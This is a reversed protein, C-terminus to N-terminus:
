YVSKRLNRQFWYSRWASPKKRPVIRNPRVSVPTGAFLQNMKGIVEATPKSSLLLEILHEKLTHFSVARNIQQRYQGQRSEQALRRQQPRTLLSELNSLLVTAHVDQRVAELGYGTFNELSLRGKLLGYYTEIGWRYGYLEGLAEVEYAREDLLTTVLVELEGTSLRLSVFRLKIIRPLGEEQMVGIKGNPALLEVVVSRGPENLAFLQDAAGFTNRGCRCVFQRGAKVFRAFLEYSAYGRDMLVLDEAGLGRLHEAALAREGQKWGVLLTQLAFGNLLDTLISLRGQVHRGCGGRQNRCNVWGFERGVEETGPLRILSSDIGILRHQRWRVVEYRSQPGYVVDLIAKQNLEIFASHRLKRRAQSWASASVPRLQEALEGFFENMHMQASRVSKQLLLVVSNMFSLRSKRTFDKPRRRHREVFSSEGLLAGIRDVAEEQSSPEDTENQM